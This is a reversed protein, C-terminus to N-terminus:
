THMISRSIAILVNYNEVPIMKIDKYQPKEPNALIDDAGIWQKDCKLSIDVDGCGLFLQLCLIPFSCHNILAIAAM